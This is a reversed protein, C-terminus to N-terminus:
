LSRRMRDEPGPRRPSRTITERGSAKQKEQYYKVIADVDYHYEEALKKRYEHIEKVIPDEWKM